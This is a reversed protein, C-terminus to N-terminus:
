ADGRRGRRGYGGPGKESLEEVLKNGNEKGRACIVVNSGADVFVRACGEGIGMSGGTILVTKGEYTIGCRNIGAM